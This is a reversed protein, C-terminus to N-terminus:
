FCEVFNHGSNRGSSAINKGSAPRVPTSGALVMYELGATSHTEWPDTLLKDSSTTM